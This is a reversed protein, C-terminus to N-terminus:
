QTLQFLKSYEETVRAAAHYAADFDATGSDVIAARWTSEGGIVDVLTISIERVDECGPQLRIAAIVKETLEERTVLTKVM